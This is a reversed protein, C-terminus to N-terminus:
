PINFSFEQLFFRFDNMSGNGKWCDDNGNYDFIEEEDEGM